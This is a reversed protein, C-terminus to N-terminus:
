RQMRGAEAQDSRARLQEGVAHNRKSAIRQIGGPPTRGIDLLLAHLVFQAGFLIPLAALMLSGAPTPVGRRAHSAWESAGFLVGATVLVASAALLVAIPSFDIGCYM